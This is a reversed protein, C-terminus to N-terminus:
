VHHPPSPLSLEACIGSDGALVEILVNILVNGFGFLLFRHIVIKRPTTQQVIQVSTCSLQKGRRRTKGGPQLKMNVMFVHPTDIKKLEAFVCIIM